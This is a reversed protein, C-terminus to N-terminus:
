LQLHINWPSQRQIQRMLKGDERFSLHTNSTDRKEGPHPVTEVLPNRPAGLHPAATSCTDSWRSGKQCLMNRCDQCSPKDRGRGPGRSRDESCGWMWTLRWYVCCNSMSFKHVVLRQFFIQASINLHKIVLCIYTNLKHFTGCFYMLYM